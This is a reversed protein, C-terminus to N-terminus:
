VIDSLKSKKNKTLVSIIGRLTQLESKSLNNIRIFINRIKQSIQEKKENTKFFKRNELACFLHNYFHNLEASIALKHYNNLDTRLQGTAQFLEYCIIAVSHALNLSSFKIDTDITIIRNAFSIERNTLGCNERGFMIGLKKVNPIDDYINRDYYLVM